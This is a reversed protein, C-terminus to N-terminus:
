INFNVLSWNSGIFQYIGIKYRWGLDREQVEFM